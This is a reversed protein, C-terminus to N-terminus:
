MMCKECSELNKLIQICSPCRNGVDEGKTSQEHKKPYDKKKVSSDLFIVRKLAEVMKQTKDLQEEKKDLKIKAEALQERMRKLEEHVDNGETETEELFKANSWNSNFKRAAAEPVFGEVTQAKGDQQKGSSMTSVSIHTSSGNTSGSSSTPSRNNTNIVNSITGVKTEAATEDRANLVNPSKAQSEQTPQVNQQDQVPIAQEDGVDLITNKGCHIKDKNYPLDISDYKGPVDQKESQTCLLSRAQPTNL